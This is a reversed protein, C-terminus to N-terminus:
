AETFNAGLRWVRVALLPRPVTPPYSMSYSWAETKAMSGGVPLDTNENVGAMHAVVVFTRWALAGTSAQGVGVRARGGAFAFVGM